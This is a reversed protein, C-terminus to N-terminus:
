FPKLGRREEVFKRAAMQEADNLRKWEAPTYCVTRKRYMSGIIPMRRCILKDPEAVPATSAVPAALLAILIM